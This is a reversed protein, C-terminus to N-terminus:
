GTASLDESNTTRRSAAFLNAFNFESSEFTRLKLEPAGMPHSTSDFFYLEAEPFRYCLHAKRKRTTITDAPRMSFAIPVDGWQQIASALHDDSESLSHGFVVLPKRYKKFEDLAFSLYDSRSIAREKDRSSGETIFLPIAEDNRPTWLSEQLTGEEWTCSKKLTRGNALRALHIGGHLYLIRTPNGWVDVNNADFYGGANWFYDKFGAGNPQTMISWYSILDYNTSFVHDHCALAERIERFVRINLDKLEDPPHVYYVAEFLANQVNTYHGQVYGSDIGLIGNMIETTSLRDLVEEFNETNFRKFIALEKPGLQHFRNSTRATDYLSGYKFKDWVVLSAGNGILLGSWAHERAVMPWPLLNGDLAHVNLDL